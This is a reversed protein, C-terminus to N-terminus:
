NTLHIRRFIQESQKANGDFGEKMKLTKALATENSGLLDFLSLSSRSTNQNKILM